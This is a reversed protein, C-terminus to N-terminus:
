LVTDALACCYPPTSCYSACLRYPKVSAMAVLAASSDTSLLRAKTSEREVKTPEPAWVACQVPSLAAVQFSRCHDIGVMRLKPM